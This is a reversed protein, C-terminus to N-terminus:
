SGTPRPSEYAEWIMPWGKQVIDAMVKAYERIEKQADPALRLSFYGLLNRMDMCWIIQTYASVPLVVRAQERAMGLKLLQHYTEYSANNQKEILEIAEKSAEQSLTEGSMQKNTTHQGRVDNIAPKYFLDPCETYRFSWENLSATRHRVHQRMVFIPLRIRFTLSVMEFPSTHRDTWLRTILRQDHEASKGESRQYSTRAARAVSRDDGLYDVLEVEGLDLVKYVKNLEEEAGQSIPRGTKNESM